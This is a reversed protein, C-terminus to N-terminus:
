DIEGSIKGIKESEAQKVFADANDKAEPSKIVVINMGGNVDDLSSDALETMEEETGENTRNKQEEANMMVTIIGGTQRIEQETKREPHMRKMLAKGAASRFRDRM